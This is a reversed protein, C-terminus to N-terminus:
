TINHEVGKKWSIESLREFTNEQIAVYLFAERGPLRNPELVLSVSRYNKNFSARASGASRFLITLPAIKFLEDQLACNLLFSLTKGLTKIAHQQVLRISHKLLM